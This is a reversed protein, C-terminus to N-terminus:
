NKLIIFIEVLQKELELLLDKLDEQGKNNEIQHLLHSDAGVVGFSGKLKHAEQSLEKWQFNQFHEQMKHLSKQSNEMFLQIMEQQFELNGGSMQELHELSIGSYAQIRRVSLKEQKYKFIWRGIIEFLEAKNFPKSLYDNMGEKLCREREINIFNATLAVIPVSSKIKERIIRTTEKGDQRPMQLDMLVLDYESRKFLAIAKIGDGAIDVKYHKEKLIAEILRQNLENDECLLIRGTALDLSKDETEEHLVEEPVEGAAYPISFTFKSGKGETSTVTMTGHQREVLQRSINLGLGTGGYKRSISEDAQSFRQFIRELKDEPIGMGTDRVEFHVMFTADEIEEASIVLDVSGKLTFKLANGLLNLLVQSLRNSDGILFEPVEPAIEYSLKLQKQKAKLHLISFVNQVVQRVSFNSLHMQIIGAEIKSLDLIDNIIFLLSDGATKVSKLYSLKQPETEQELLLETFGLVAHIPTRIEHSVNAIFSDKQRNLSEAALKAEQLAKEAEIELTIDQAIKIVKNVSGDPSKIPNYTAQMWVEQGSKRIRKFRGAKYDGNQLAQWFKDSKVGQDGDLLMSHHQGLLEEESYGTFSRFISNTSLIYGEPSFEVVSNSRKISELLHQYENEKLILKEEAQKIKENLIYQLEKTLERNKKRAELLTMVQRSLLKLSSKQSASLERPKIDAVCVTGINHGNPAQLSIGAYYRIGNEAKVHPNERVREDKLADTIELIENQLLTYQCITENKPLETADMGVKAKYWQRQDDLMSIIAVPVECIAAILQALEQFEEEPESDLIGYSLLTKLRKIEESDTTKKM